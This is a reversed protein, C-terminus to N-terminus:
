LVEVALAAPINDLLKRGAAEVDAAEVLGQLLSPLRQSLRITWPAGRPAALDLAVPITGGARASTSAAFAQRAGAVGGEFTGEVRATMGAMGPAGALGLADDDAPGVAWRVACYRGPPPRILGPSSPDGSRLDQVIPVGLRTPTTPTHAHATGLLVAGLRSRGAHAAADCPELGLSVTTLFGREISVSRGGIDVAALGAEASQLQFGVEIGPQYDSVSCAAAACVTLAKVVGDCGM